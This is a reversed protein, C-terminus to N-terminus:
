RDVDEAVENINSGLVNQNVNRTRYVINRREECRSIDMDTLYSM